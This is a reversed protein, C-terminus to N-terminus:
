HEHQYALVEVKGQTILGRPVMPQVAKLIEKVREEKDIFEIVVPLDDSLQLPRTKHIHKGAGYGEIGRSVTVGALGGEELRQVITQYLPKGDLRENEGVFIRVMQCEGTINMVEEKREKLAARIFGGQGKRALRRRSVEETGPMVGSSMKPPDM